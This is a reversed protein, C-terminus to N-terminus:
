AVSRLSDHRAIAHLSNAGLDQAASLVVCM